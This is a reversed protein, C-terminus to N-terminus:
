PVLICLMSNITDKSRLSSAFKNKSSLPRVSFSPKMILQEKKHGVSCGGNFLILNDYSHDVKSSLCARRTEWPIIWTIAWQFPMDPGKSSESSLAPSQDTLIIRASLARGTASLNNHMESVHTINVYCIEM